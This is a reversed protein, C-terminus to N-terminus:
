LNSKTDLGHNSILIYPSPVFEEPNPGSYDLQRYIGILKCSFDVEIIRLHYVKPRDMEDVCIKTSILDWCDITLAYIFTEIM